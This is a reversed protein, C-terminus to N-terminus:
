QENDYLEKWSRIMDPEGLRNLLDTVSEYASSGFVDYLATNDGLDTFRLNDLGFDPNKDFKKACAAAKSLSAESEKKLGNKYEAYSLLAQMYVGIKDLYDPKAGDKVSSLFNVGFTAIELAAKFDKRSRYLFVYSMVASLVNIIGGTFTESLFEAAEEPRDLHISLFMAIDRSYIGCANHKKLIEVCDEIKGLLFLASSMAGFIATENMRPDTNQPLLVRARELLELAKNLREEDRDDISYCIYINACSYVAEFSHPYKALVKDAETLAEPDGTRALRSLREMMSRLRNDKIRYGILDDVSTDFFDAIDVLMDLEPVSLGSEWKYVAGPTVGLAEALKEQTLGREKRFKRINESLNLKMPKGKKAM